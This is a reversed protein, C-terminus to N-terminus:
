TRLHDMLGDLEQANMGLKGMSPTEVPGPAVANVRIGRPMLEAAFTRTLSILGAKTASYVSTTPIGMGALNSANVVIRAGDSLLPILKQLTFFPGKLNTRYLHDFQEETVADIPAPLTVGANLFVIDLSGFTESIQRAMTDIQGLDTQDAQLALTESGLLTGAQSLRDSNQGTIALLAGEKQFTKATALGIGTTGGTILATKNQLKGM